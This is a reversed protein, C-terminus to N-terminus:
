QVIHPMSGLRFFSKKGHRPLSSDPICLLDKSEYNFWMVSVRSIHTWNKAKVPHEPHGQTFWKIERHRPEKNVFHHYYKRQRGQSKLAYDTRSLSLKRSHMHLIVALVPGLSTNKSFLFFFVWWGLICVVFYWYKMICIYPIGPKLRHIYYFRFLCMSKGPQAQLFCPSSPTTSGWPLVIGYAKIWQCLLLLLISVSFVSFCIFVPINEQAQWHSLFLGTQM